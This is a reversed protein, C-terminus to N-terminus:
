AMIRGQRDSIRTDPRTRPEARAHLLIHTSGYSRPLLVTPAARVSNRAFRHDADCLPADRRIHCADAGNHAWRRALIADALQWSV